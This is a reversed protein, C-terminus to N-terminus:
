ALFHFVSYALIALLLEDNLRLIKRKVFFHFNRHRHKTKKASQLPPHHPSVFSIKVSTLAIKALFIDNGSKIFVCWKRNIALLAPPHRSPDKCIRSLNQNKGGM